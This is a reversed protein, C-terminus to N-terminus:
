KFKELFEIMLRVGIGTGFKPHYRKAESLFATSAIDFHVWPLKESFFQQLFVAGNISSASRTGLNKIDAIDSRLNDKYEEYVPLRCVREFTEAGAQLFLDALEDSNSFMGTVENGLAIDIGGTLTAFDILCTPNLHKEAYSLADALVLRGEADTNAIEVTKGAHSTYVDGPKYSNASICNDTAPIIATLHIPLELKAAAWLTGLVVAAGGMDCKMMEMGSVKLNLGGTDYTIGKGVIVVHNKTKASGKYEVVIFAPPVISGRNVALLLGMGEKEIRKKDFITTKVKPFTKALTEAVEALYQPNVEDANGNILDRALYVGQCITDYKNFEELIKKGAGILTITQILTPSFEKLAAKKLKTFNYNTLLIGESIGRALSEDSLGTIEPLLLNMDELTKPISAKVLSGYARRLIEVTVKKEEGLGLLAVRKEPFDQPYLFLIEGEKGKFDGVKIPRLIEDPLDITNVAVSAGKQLKWVPVVLLDAAKRNKLKTAVLFKM